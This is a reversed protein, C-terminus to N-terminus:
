DFELMRMFKFVITLKAYMIGHNRAVIAIFFIVVQLLDFYIYYHTYRVRVRKRDLIVASHTIYGTNLQIYIDAIFILLFLVNLVILPPSTLDAQWAPSGYVLM